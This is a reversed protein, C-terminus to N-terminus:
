LQIITEDYENPLHEYEQNSKNEGCRYCKDSIEDCINHYKDNIQYMVVHSVVILFVILVTIAVYIWPNNAEELECCIRVSELAYDVVENGYVKRKEAEVDKWCMQGVQNNWTGIAIALNGRINKSCQALSEPGNNSDVIHEVQDTPKIWSSYEKRLQTNTYPKCRDGALNPMASSALIRSPSNPITNMYFFDSQKIPCCHSNYYNTSTKTTCQPLAALVSILLSLYLLMKRIYKFVYNYNKILTPVISYVM